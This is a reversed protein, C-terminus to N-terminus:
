HSRDGLGPKKADSGQLWLNMYEGKSDYMRVQSEINFYCDQKLLDKEWTYEQVRKQAAEEGGSYNIVTRADMISPTIGLQELTPVQDTQMAPIKKVAPLAFLPRVSSEPEVEKKFQTFMDPLRKIPWPIDEHHLLTSTWFQKVFIWNVELKPKIGKLIGVENSMLERLLTSPLFM